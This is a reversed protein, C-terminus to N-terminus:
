SWHRVIGLVNRALTLRDQYDRNLRQKFDTNIKEFLEKIGEGSYTALVGKSDGLTLTYDEGPKKVEVVFDVTQVFAEKTHIQKPPKGKYGVINDGEQNIIPEWEFIFKTLNLVVELSPTDGKLDEEVFRYLDVM